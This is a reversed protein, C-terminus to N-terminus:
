SEKSPTHRSPSADSPPAARVAGDILVGRFAAILTDRRLREADRVLPGQLVAGVHAAIVIRTAEEADPHLTAGTREAAAAILPTMRERFAEAHARMTEALVPDTTAKLAFMARLAYWQRDAPIAHLLEDAVEPVSTSTPSGLEAGIGDLLDRTKSEYLAFFVDEVSRFNSYFAGRTFGAERCIEDIPVATTGADLFLRGAADLLAARTRARARLPAAERDNTQESM